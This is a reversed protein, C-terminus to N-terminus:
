KKNTIQIMHRSVSYQRSDGIITNAKKKAQDMGDIPAYSHEFAELMSLDNLGDGYVATESEKIGLLQCLVRVANGKNVQKHTIEFCDPMFPTNVISESHNRIWRDVQKGTKELPWSNIKYIPQSLIDEQTSDFVYQAELMKLVSPHVEGNWFSNNELEKRKREKSYLSYKAHLGVYEFNVQPFTAMLEEIISAQIAKQYIIQGDPDVIVAGNMCIRYIPRNGINLTSKTDRGTAFCIVCGTKLVQDMNHLITPDMMHQANLLTGDLDTAILRIM